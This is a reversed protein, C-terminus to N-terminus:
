ACGILEKLDEFTRGKYTAAGEPHANTPDYLFTSIELLKAAAIESEPDDGVVMVENKSYGFRDVIEQFIDKKSKGSQEPDVIYIKRFDSRIGLRDIKSEQLRTFGTTVLYKDAEIERVVKYDDFFFMPDDFTTNRLLDTGKETLERSFHFREAVKQFPRKMIEEVAERYDEETLENKHQDMLQFLPAFLKEGISKVPYITNDLDM